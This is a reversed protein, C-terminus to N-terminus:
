VETISYSQCKLSIQWSRYTPHPGIVALYQWIRFDLTSISIPNINIVVLSLNMVMSHDEYHPPLHFYRSATSHAPSLRLIHFPKQLPVTSTAKRPLNNGNNPRTNPPKLFYDLPKFCGCYIYIYMAYSINSVFMTEKSSPQKQCIPRYCIIAPKCSTPITCKGVFSGTPMKVPETNCIQCPLLRQTM